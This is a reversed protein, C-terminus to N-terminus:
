GDNFEKEMLDELFPMSDWICALLYHNLQVKQEIRKELKEIAGLVIVRESKNMSLSKWKNKIPLFKKVQKEHNFSSEFPNIENKSIEVIIKKLYQNLRLKEETAETYEKLSLSIGKIWYEPLSIFFHNKNGKLDLQDLPTRGRM